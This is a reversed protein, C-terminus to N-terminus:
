ARGGEINSKRQNGAAELIRSFLKGVPGDQQSFAEVSGWLASSRAGNSVELLAAAAIERPSRAECWSPTFDQGDMRTGLLALGEFLARSKGFSPDNGASAKLDAELRSLRSELKM